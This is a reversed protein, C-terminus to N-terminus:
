LAGTKLNTRHAGKKYLLSIVARRQSIALEGEEYSTFLDKIREWFVRYFELTIGDIGPIEDNRLARLAKKYEAENLLGECKAIQEDNM